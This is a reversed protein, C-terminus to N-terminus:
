GSLWLVVVKVLDLFNERKRKRRKDGMVNTTSRNDNKVVRLQAKVLLRPLEERLYRVKKPCLRDLLIKLITFQSTPTQDMAM